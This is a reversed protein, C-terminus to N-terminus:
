MVWENVVHDILLFDFLYNSDLDPIGSSIFMTGNPGHKLGHNQSTVTSVNRSFSSVRARTAAMRCWFKVTQWESVQPLLSYMNIHTWGIPLLKHWFFPKLSWMLLYCVDYFFHHIFHLFLSWVLKNVEFDYYINFAYILKSRIEIEILVLFNIYVM